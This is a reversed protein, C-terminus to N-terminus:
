FLMKLPSILLYIVMISSLIIGIIKYTKNKIALAPLIYSVTRLIQLCVLIVILTKERHWNDTFSQIAASGISTIFTVVVFTILLISSTDINSKRRKM